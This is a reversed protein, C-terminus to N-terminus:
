TPMINCMKTRAFFFPFYKRTKSIQTVFKTPYSLITDKGKTKRLKLNKCRMQINIRTYNKLLSSASVHKVTLWLLYPLFSGISFYWARKSIKIKQGWILGFVIGMNRFNHTVFFYRWRPPKWHTYIYIKM